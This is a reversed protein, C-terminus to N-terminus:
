NNSYTPAQLLNKLETLHKNEFNQEAFIQTIGSATGLILERLESSFLEKNLKYFKVFSNYAEKASTSSAQLADMTLIIFHAGESIKYDQAEQNRPLWHKIILMKLEGNELPKVHQDAAIAYFLNGIQEYIDRIDTKM